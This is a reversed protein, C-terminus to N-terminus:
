IIGMNWEKRVSIPMLVTCSAKYMRAEVGGTSREEKEVIRGLDVKPAEKKKGPGADESRRRLRGSRSRSKTSGSRGLDVLQMGPASSELSEATEIIAVLPATSRSIKQPAENTPAQMQAFTLMELCTM